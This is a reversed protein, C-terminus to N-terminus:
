LVTAKGADLTKVRNHPERNKSTAIKAHYCRKRYIVM